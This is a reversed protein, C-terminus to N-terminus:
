REKATCLIREVTTPGPPAPRRGKEWFTLKIEDDEAAVTM